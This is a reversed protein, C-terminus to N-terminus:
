MLLAELKKIIANNQANLQQIQRAAEIQRTVAMELADEPIKSQSVVEASPDLTNWMEVIKKGDVVVDFPESLDVSHRAIIGEFIKAETVVDKVTEHSVKSGRKAKPLSGVEIKGHVPEDPPGPCVAIPSSVAISSVVATPSAATERKESKSSSKSKRSRSISRPRPSSSSLPAGEAAARAVCQLFANTKESESGSVIKKPNVDIKIKLLGEVHSIIATLYEIKQEKTEIKSSESLEPPIVHTFTGFHENISRILDHIFRFPPKKLLKEQLQPSTINLPAFAQQTASWFDNEEM